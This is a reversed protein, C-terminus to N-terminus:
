IRKSNELEWNARSIGKAWLHVEESGTHSAPEHQKYRQKFTIIRLKGYGSWFEETGNSKKM